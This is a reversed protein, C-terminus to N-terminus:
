LPFWFSCTSVHFFWSRQYAKSSPYWKERSFFSGLHGDFPFIIIFEPYIRTGVVGVVAVGLGKCLSLYWIRPLIVVEVYHAEVLPLQLLKIIEDHAWYIFIIQQAFISAKIYLFWTFMTTYLMNKKYIVLHHDCIELADVWIQPLELGSSKNIFFGWQTDVVACLAANVYLM